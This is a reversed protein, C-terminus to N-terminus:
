AFMSFNKLVGIKFFMQSPSSQLNESLKSLKVQSSTKVFVCPFFFREFVLNYSVFSAKEYHEKDNPKERKRGKVDSSM